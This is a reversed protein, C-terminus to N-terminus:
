GIVGIGIQVLLASYRKCDVFLYKGLKPSISNNLTTTVKQIMPPRIFGYHKTEKELMYRYLVTLWISGAEKFLEGWSSIRSLTVIWAELYSDVVVVFFFPSLLDRLRVGKSVFIFM